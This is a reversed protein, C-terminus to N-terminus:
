PTSRTGIRELLGKGSAYWAWDVPGEQAIAWCHYVFGAHNLCM